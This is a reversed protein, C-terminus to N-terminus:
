GFGIRLKVMGDGLRVAGAVSVSLFPPQELIQLLKVLGDVIRKPINIAEIIKDVNSM